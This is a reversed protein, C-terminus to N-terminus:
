DHYVPRRYLGEADPQARNLRREMKRVLQRYRNRVKTRMSNSPNGSVYAGDSRFTYTHSLQLDDRKTHVRVLIVGPTMWDDWMDVSVVAFSNVYAESTLRGLMEDIYEEM